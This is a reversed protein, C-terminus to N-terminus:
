WLSQLPKLAGGAGENKPPLTCISCGTGSKGSPDWEARQRFSMCKVEVKRRGVVVNHGFTGFLGSAKSDRDGPWSGLSSVSLLLEPVDEGM